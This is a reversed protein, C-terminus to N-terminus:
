YYSIEGGRTFSYTKRKWDALSIFTAYLPKAEYVMTYSMDSVMNDMRAMPTNSIALSAEMMDMARYSKEKMSKLIIMQLLYDNYSFGVGVDKAKSSVPFYTPLAYFESTWSGDLKILSIKGGSLLLRLDLLSEVFAWVLVLAAMVVPMFEPWIATISTAIAEVEHRKGSDAMIAGVNVLERIGLLKAIAAELNAPDSEKGSLIYEIEYQMGRNPKVQSYSSFYTDLYKCFVLNEMAKEYDKTKEKQAKTGKNLTRNSISKSIDMSHQSVGEVDQIVLSFVGQRRLEKVQSILGKMSAEQPTDPAYLSPDMTSAELEDPTLAYQSAEKETPALEALAQKRAGTKSAERMRRKKDDIFTIAEDGNEIVGDNNGEYSASAAMTESFEDIASRGLLTWLNGCAQSIFVSGEDDTAIQYRNIVPSVNDIQYYDMANNSGSYRELLSEIKHESFNDTGCAGDLYLVGYEKWLTPNYMSFVSSAAREAAMTAYSKLGSIRAAEVFSFLLSMVTVLSLAVYVTMSARLEYKADSMM